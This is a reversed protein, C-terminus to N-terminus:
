IKAKFPSDQRRRNSILFFFKKVEPNTSIIRVEQFVPLKQYNEKFESDM